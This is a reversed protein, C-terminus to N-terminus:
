NMYKQIKKNYMDIIEYTLNEDIIGNALTTEFIRKPLRINKLNFGLMNKIKLKSKYIKDSLSTLDNDTFNYGISNLALLITERDYIKRDFLYVILSNLICREREENFITDILKQKDLNKMSQDMSCISNCLNCYTAGITHEVASGYGTHHRSAENGAFQVAFDIGGYKEAAKASGKSLTKYFNNKNTAMYKIAKIYNEVYGYKIPIITDKNTIMGREYSETAWGLVIGAYIVDFGMLEAIEILQLVKETTNIELYSGLAFILEYNYDISISQYDYDRNFQEIHICGMPCDTCTIRKVLNKISFQEKSINEANKFSSQTLNKASLSGIEHMSLVNASTNLRRYKQMSDTKTVKRFIKQYAKFYEQPNQVSFSRNGTIAIAKLNKSGFIGGLGLGGFYRYTDVCVSAFSSLTEGAPGISLISSKGESQEKERIISSTENTSLGWLAKADKFEIENDKISIYTPKNSKGTIIVVDYDSFFLSMAMGGGVYSEGLEITLPSYFMAVTKTAVPFISTVAGIAFIIPQNSNLPHLDPSINEELLKSAIGVGGLYEKLDQRHEVKFIENSLDIYLVKIYNKYLM